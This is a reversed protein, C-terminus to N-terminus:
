YQEGSDEDSYKEVFENIRKKIKEIYVTAYSTENGDDNKFKSEGQEYEPSRLHLERRNRRFTIEKLVIQTFSKRKIGKISGVLISIFVVVSIMIKIKSVFNVQCVILVGCGGFLIGEIINRMPIKGVKRKRIVNENLEYDVSEKENNEAM